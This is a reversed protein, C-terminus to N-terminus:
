NKSLDKEFFRLRGGGLMWVFRLRELGERWKMKLVEKEKGVGSLNELNSQDKTLKKLDRILMLMYSPANDSAITLSKFIKSRSLNTYDQVNNFTIDKRDEYGEHIIKSKRFKSGGVIGACVSRGLSVRFCDLVGELGRTLILLDFILADLEFESNLLHTLTTIHNSNPSLRTVLIEQFTQVIEKTIEVDVATNRPTNSLPPTKGNYFTGSLEEM